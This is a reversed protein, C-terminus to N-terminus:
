EMNEVVERSPFTSSIDSDIEKQNSDDPIEGAVLGAFRVADEHSLGFKQQCFSILQDNM